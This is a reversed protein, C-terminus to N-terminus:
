VLLAYLATEFTAPDVTPERYIEWNTGALGLKQEACWAFLLQWAGPLGDYPGLLLFHGARGAPLEAPVVDSVPDFPRGVLIGPAMEFWGDKPPHWLTLTDGFPSRFLM